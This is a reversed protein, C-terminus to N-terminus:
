QSEDSVDGEKSRSPPSALAVMEQAMVRLKERMIHICDLKTCFGRVIDEAFTRCTPSGCSGCDYGPLEELIRNMENMKQMAVVINDDLRMAASPEIRADNRTPYKALVSYPVAKDPHVPPMAAALKRIGAKAVYNNEFTLAGGVCGGMCANGELYELDQLKNNEVEELVRIVNPIGDVSLSSEPCVANAEGNSAAWAMGYGTSLRFGPDSQMKEVHPLLLGYVEMISIAGDLGSKKQGLPRHIATMKAPCPTIFFCGVEEPACGQKQCFEARAISAAVEMPQRIDIVHDLLEPFRVQILRVVAPCASSIVPRPLTVDRLRERIAKTVVDAGRSVEFVDDFGIRKLAELVYEPRKLGRFQGYLTPAPLAIRYKFAEIASLPDTVAVKAHYDCIRICEGCDICMTDLIHARGGRVRIAETPCHELCNTCGRCRDKDLRVSHYRATEEM